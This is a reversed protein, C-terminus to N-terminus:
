KYKGTISLSLGIVTGVGHHPISDESGHPDRTHGWGQKPLGVNIGDFQGFRFSDPHQKYFAAVTVLRTVLSQQGPVFPVSFVYATGTGDDPRILSFTPRATPEGCYASAAEATRVASALRDIPASCAAHAADCYSLTAAIVFAVGCLLGVKGLVGFLASLM